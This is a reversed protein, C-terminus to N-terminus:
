CAGQEKRQSVSLRAPAIAIARFSPGLWVEGGCLHSVILDNLLHVYVALGTNGCKVGGDEGM